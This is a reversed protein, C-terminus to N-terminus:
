ITSRNIISQNPNFSKSAALWSLRLAPTKGFFGQEIAEVKFVNKGDADITDDHKVNYDLRTLRIETYRSCIVIASYQPMRAAAQSQYTASSSTM